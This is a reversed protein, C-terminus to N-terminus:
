LNNIENISLGTYKAITEVPMNDAKMSRALALKAQLEGEARGEKRGKEIGIKEGKEMGIKIGKKEAAENSNALDWLNILSDEYADYEDATYKAIEAQEFLKKFVRDQLEKPREM